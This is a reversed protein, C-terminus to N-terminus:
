ALREVCIATAKFESTGSKPDAAEITLENTAVIDPAHFTMFALGPQLRPDLRVPAEIKGRRSRVTVREGPAVGLRKGDEPSLDITEGRRLPSDYHDTQVGTNYESLHRGTTLRIPYEENLGDVPPAYSVPTFPAAPGIRPRQWLRSHMYLEGPHDVDYCPWQIGGLKELREYSMGAHMPSLTRLENWLAESNAEGWDHGLRRALEFIVDTDDRVGPPPAVARRV